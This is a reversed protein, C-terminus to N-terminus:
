RRRRGRARIRALGRNDPNALLKVAPWEHAVAVEYRVGRCAAALSALCEALYDRINYSVIVVSLQVDGSSSM